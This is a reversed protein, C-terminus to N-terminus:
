IYHKVRVKYRDQKKGSPGTVCRKLCRKAYLYGFILSRVSPISVSNMATM